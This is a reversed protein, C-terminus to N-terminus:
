KILKGPDDIKEGVIEELREAWRDLAERKQRDYASLNYIMGTVSRDAHNLIKALVEQFCGDEAMATAATRRLDHSHFEPIGFKPLNHRIAASLSPARMPGDGLRSPFVWPSDELSKKSKRIGHKAATLITIAAKSLPVRHPRKNKARTGPLSWLGTELDLEDWRMGAIEGARQATVLQLRLALSCRLDMKTAPLGKWFARIEDTSLARDRRRNAAPQKCSAAPNVSLWEMDVGFSCIKRFLAFVRNALIPTGAAAIGKHFLNIDRRSIDQLRRDGWHPLLHRRLMRDDERWSRKNPKAHLELYKDALDRFVIVYGLRQKPDEHLRRAQKISDRHACAEAYSLEPWDKLTLRQAVGDLAYVVCWTKRGNPSVRVQLGGGAPAIWRTARPKLADVDLDSYVMVRARRQRRKPAPKKTTTM